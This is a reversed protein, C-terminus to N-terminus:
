AAAGAAQAAYRERMDELSLAEYDGAHGTQGFDRMRQAILLQM